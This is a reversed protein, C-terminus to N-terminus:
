KNRKYIIKGMYTVQYLEFGTKYMKFTEKIRENEIEKFFEAKKISGNDQFVINGFETNYENWPESPCKPNKLNSDSFYFDFENKEPYYKIGSRPSKYSGIERFSIKELNVLYQKPLGHKVIELNLLGVIEIFEEQNKEPIAYYFFEKVSRVILGSEEELILTQLDNNIFVLDKVIPISSNKFINNLKGHVYEETIYKREIYGYPSDKSDRHNVLPLMEYKSEPPCEKTVDDEIKNISQQIRFYEENNAEKDDKELENNAKLAFFRLEENDLSNHKPHSKKFTNEQTREEVNYDFTNAIIREKSNFKVTQKKLKSNILNPIWVYIYYGTIIVIFRKIFSGSYNKAFILYLSCLTWLIFLIKTVRVLNNWFTLFKNKLFVFIIDVKM